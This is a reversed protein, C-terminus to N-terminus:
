FNIMVNQMKCCWELVQNETNWTEDMLHVFWTNKDLISIGNIYKNYKFIHFLRSWCEVHIFKRQTPSLQSFMKARSINFLKQYWCHSFFFQRSFEHFHLNCISISSERQFKLLQRPYIQSITLWCCGVTFTTTPTKPTRKVSKLVYYSSFWISGAKAFFRGLANMLLRSPHRFLSM